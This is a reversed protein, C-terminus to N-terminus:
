LGLEVGFSIIRPTPFRRSATVDRLSADFGRFKTLTFLNEANAFIRVKRFGTNALYDSPINYGFTINRLRVYDSPVLFRDSGINLNTARLSPIDTVRNTPTWARLLDASLNFSGIDSPDVFGAYDFDFRDVGIVYQFQSQLFFGKYDIDFGFSGQADPTTNKGTWVRDTDANPNETLNGERDLFLLNGNAPNVGAYRVAFIERIPGGNRGIGQIEGNESPLDALANKNYNGVANFTIRLDDKNILDYALQLDFGKNTLSGVNANIVTQGNVASIPLSQFLDSTKKSYYDVSGRLRNEFVGFDIGVNFQTVTEWRLTNNGIQSLGISNNGAYGQGTAFFTFPLDAGSFYTNGTIRQNGTEGYSARLKLSNFASDNMFDEKDLNWRGALSWFTGWRNTTAFRFSADRRITADFGYKSDYDYTLTGFYSLLGADLKEARISDVFFDNNPNDAIFGSGDGPSFTKPNLGRAVQGFSRFHAKFFELYAAAGITHNGYEKDWRISSTSNFALTRRLDQTQLGDVNPNFRLQNRSIPHESFLRVESEYDLGARTSVTVDDTVKYSGEVSAIIKLEEELSTATRFVDMIYFPAYALVFDQALVRSGPYDAPTYYPLSSNAGFLPNRNVGATGIDNPTDNKSFNLSLATAYQFKGNSSNGTVNNRLNFRKLNSNQLLGEQNFYGLSTFQSGNEGGSTLTLTHNETVGTRFFFNRWDTTKANAIEADTLPVGTGPFLSNGTGAGRGVGFERELRLYQQSNALNYDNGQLTSLSLIGTYNIQLGQGKKGRRTKIIVVGNAGRNGYIATAGADKLVSISAIDNPNLSRFNDENIPIGDMLFLPETNGNISNVGRLQVLSNAGPQGSGTSIDLGPVQGAIRQVISANPRNEITEASLQTVAVTSKAKATTTYGNVVIEELLADNEMTLSIQNSLGVVREVTKLGVFSFVLIDGTKAKISYEGNFDTETGSTTGKKLVSVGPLPGSEDSVTGSIIKDQAFSIQVVLALLLTLIGNFKTKMTYNNSNIM